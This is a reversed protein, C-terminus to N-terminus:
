EDKCMWMAQDVNFGAKILADFKIRLMEARIIEQKKFEPLMRRMEATVAKANDLADELDGPFVKISFEAKEEGM